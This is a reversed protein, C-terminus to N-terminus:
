FTFSRHDGPEIGADARAEELRDSLKEHMVRLGEFFETFPMDPDITEARVIADTIIQEFKAQKIDDM